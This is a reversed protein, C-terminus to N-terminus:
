QVIISLKTVNRPPLWGRFKMAAPYGYSRYRQFGYVSVAVPVSNNFHRLTHFGTSVQMRLTYGCLKEESCYLQTWESDVSVNDLLVDRSTPAAQQLVVITIDSNFNEFAYFNITTNTVYQETPIIMMMFPDGWDNNAARGYAYQIVLVPRDASLYCYNMQEVHFEEFGGLDAIYVKRSFLYFVNQLQFCMVSITTYQESSVIRYWEPSIRSVSDSPVLFFFRGLTSTQPVQEFLHDCAVLGPPVDACQHGSFVSLPNNSVIQSGTLDLNSSIQYTELQNLRITYSQGPHIFGRTNPDRLDDPITIYQTPTITVVTDNRQGVILILSFFISATRNTWLMSSTIYTYTDKVPGQPLALFADATYERYNMGSVFIHKGPDTARVLIGKNRDTAGQVM